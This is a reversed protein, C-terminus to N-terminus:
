KKLSACADHRPQPLSKVGKASAREVMQQHHQEQYTKCDEYSTMGRMKAQHETREQPTMMSWGATYQSGWRGGHRGGVPGKGPQPAAAAAPAGAGPAAPTQAWAATGIVVGLCVLTLVRRM